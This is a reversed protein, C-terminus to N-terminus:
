WQSEQRKTMSDFISLSSPIKSNFRHSWSNLLQIGEVVGMGPVQSNEKRIDNFLPSNLRAQVARLESFKDRHPPSSEHGLAKM